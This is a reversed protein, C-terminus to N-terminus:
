IYYYYIPFILDYKISIIYVTQKSNKRKSEIHRTTNLYRKAYTINSVIDNKLYINNCKFSPLISHYNKTHILTNNISHTHLKSPIPACRINSTIRYIKTFRNIFLM